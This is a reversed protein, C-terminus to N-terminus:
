YILCWCILNRWRWGRSIRVVCGISSIIVAFSIMVACGVLVIPADKLSSAVFISAAIIKDTQVFISANTITNFHVDIMMMQQRSVYWCNPVMNWVQHCSGVIGWVLLLLLLWILQMMLQVCQECARYISQLLIVYHLQRLCRHAHCYDNLSHMETSDPSLNVVMLNQTINQNVAVHFLLVCKGLLQM